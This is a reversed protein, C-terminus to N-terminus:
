AVAQWIYNLTLQEGVALIIPTPIDRVICFYPQTLGLDYRDLIYIGIENITISGSSGNTFVRTIIVSSTTSTASAAAVTCASYQLNNTGTGHGCQLVLKYDSITVATNTLGVVIGYFPNGSDARMSYENIGTSLGPAITKDNGSTDKIVVTQQGIMVALFQLFAQVFSHCVRRGQKRVLKGSGDHIQYNYYLGLGGKKYRM